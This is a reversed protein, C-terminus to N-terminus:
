RDDPVEAILGVVVGFRDVGAALAQTHGDDGDGVVVRNIGRFDEAVPGIEEEAFLDGAGHRAARFEVESDVADGFAVMDFNLLTAVIKYREQHIERFTFDEETHIVHKGSERALALGLIEFPEGRVPESEFRAVTLHPRARIVSGLAKCFGISFDADGAAIRVSKRSDSERVGFNGAGAGNLFKEGAKTCVAAMDAAIM